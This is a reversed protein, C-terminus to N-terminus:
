PSRRWFRGSPARDRSEAPACFRGSPARDRSGAPACGESGWSGGIGAIGRFMPHRFLVRFRTISRALSYTHSFALTHTLSNYIHRLTSTGYKTSTEIM